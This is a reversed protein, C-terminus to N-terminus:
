TPEAATRPRRRSQVYELLSDGHIAWRNGDKEAKLEGRAIASRMKASGYHHDKLIKRCFCWASCTTYKPMPEHKNERWRALELAVRAGLREWPRLQPDEPEPETGPWTERHEGCGWRAWTAPWRGLGDYEDQRRDAASPMRPSGIICLGKRQGLNRWYCCRECRVHEPKM